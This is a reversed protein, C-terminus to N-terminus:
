HLGGIGAEPGSIRAPHSHRPHEAVLMSAGPRFAIASSRLPSFPLYTFHLRTLHRYIDLHGPPKTWVEVLGNPDVVEPNATPLATKALFEDQRPLTKAEMRVHSYLSCPVRSM